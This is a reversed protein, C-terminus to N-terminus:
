IRTPWVLSCLLTTQHWVIPWSIYSKLNFLMIHIVSQSLTFTARPMSCCSTSDEFVFKLPRLTIRLSMTLRWWTFSIPQTQFPIWQLITYWSWWFVVLNPKMQLSSACQAIHAISSTYTLIEFTIVVATICIRQTQLYRNSTILSHVMYSFDPFPNEDSLIM